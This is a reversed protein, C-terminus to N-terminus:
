IKARRTQKLEKWNIEFDRVQQFLAGGSTPAREGHWEKLKAAVGEYNRDMPKNLECFARVIEYTLEEKTWQRPRGGTKKAAAAAPAGYILRLLYETHRLHEGILIEEDPNDSHKKLAAEQLETLAGLHVTGELALLLAGFDEFRDRVERVFTKIAEEDAFRKRPITITNDPGEAFHGTPSEIRKGDMNRVQFRRGITVTEGDVRAWILARAKCEFSEVTLPESAKPKKKPPTESEAEKKARRGTM